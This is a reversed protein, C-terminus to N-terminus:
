LIYYLSLVTIRSRNGHRLLKDWASRSLFFFVSAPFGVWCEARWGASGSLIGTYTTSPGVCWCHLLWHWLHFAAGWKWGSFVPNGERGILNSDTDEWQSQHAELSLCSETVLTTFGQLLQWLQYHKYPQISELCCKWKLLNSCFCFSHQSYQSLPSSKFLYKMQNVEYKSCLVFTQDGGSFIHKVIHYKCADTPSLCPQTLPQHICTGVQAKEGGMQVALVVVLLVQTRQLGQQFWSSSLCQLVKTLPVCSPFTTM